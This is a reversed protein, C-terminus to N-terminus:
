KGQSSISSGVRVSTRGLRVVPLALRGLCIYTNAQRMASYGIHTIVSLRQLIKVGLIQTNVQEIIGPNVNLQM